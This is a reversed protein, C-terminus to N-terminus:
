EPGGDQLLEKVVQKLEAINFPKAMAKDAGAELADPLVRDGMAAIAIIKTGPDEQKMRRITELGGIGPMMLDCIVLDPSAQHFLELGTEGDKAELIIEYGEETLVNHVLERVIEVDDIILIKPM